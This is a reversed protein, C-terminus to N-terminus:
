MNRDVVMLLSGSSLRAKALNKHEICLLVRPIDFSSFKIQFFKLFGSTFFIICVVSITGRSLRWALRRFGFVKFVFSLHKANCMEASLVTRKNNREWKSETLSLTNSVQTYACRSSGIAKSNEKDCQFFFVKEFLTIRYLGYNKNCTADFREGDRRRCRDTWKGYLMSSVVTPLLQIFHPCFIFMVDTTTAYSPPL